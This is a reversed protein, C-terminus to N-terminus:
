SSADREELVFSYVFWWYFFLWGISVLLSGYDHVIAAVFQGAYYAILIVIVIRFINILFTGLLGIVFAKLKSFNTYRDGQLGVWSTTIFFLLSQWGICNWMIEAVFPEAQGIVVYEKTLTVQMGMLSLIAGVMKVEFPVIVERIFWYGKFNIVIRTLVDNFTSMFPFLMLMLVLILFITIFMEKSPHLRAAKLVNKM